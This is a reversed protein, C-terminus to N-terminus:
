RQPHAPLLKPAQRNILTSFKADAPMGLSNWLKVYKQQLDADELQVAKWADAELTQRATALKGISQLFLVFDLTAAVQDRDGLVAKTEAVVARFRPEDVPGLHGAAFHATMRSWGVYARASRAATQFYPLEAIEDYMGAAAGARGANLEQFALLQMAAFQLRDGGMSAAKKLGAASLHELGLIGALRGVRYFAHAQEDHSGFLLLRPLAQTQLIELADKNLGVKAYYRAVASALRGGLASDYQPGLIETALALLPYAKAPPSFTAIVALIAVVAGPESCSELLKWAETEAKRPQEEYLTELRALDDRIDEFGRRGAATLNDFSELLKERNKPWQPDKDVRKLAEFAIPKGLGLLRTFFPKSEIEVAELLDLFEQFTLADENRDWFKHRISRGLCKEAKRLSMGRAALEVKLQAVAEEVTIKEMIGGQSVTSGHERGVGHPREGFFPIHRSDIEGGPM